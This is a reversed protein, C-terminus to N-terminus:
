LGARYTACIVWTFRTAACSNYGQRIQVMVYGLGRTKESLSRAFPRDTTPPFDLFLYVLPQLKRLTPWLVCSFISVGPFSLLVAWWNKGKNILFVSSEVEDRRPSRYFLVIRTRARPRKHAHTDLPHFHLHLHFLIRVLFRDRQSPHRARESERIRRALSVIACTPRPIACTPLIIVREVMFPALEGLRARTVSSVTLGLPTTTHCGSNTTCWCAGRGFFFCLISFFVRFHLLHRATGSM